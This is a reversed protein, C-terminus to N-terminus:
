INKGKYIIHFFKEGQLNCYVYYVCLYIHICLTYVCVYIYTYIFFAANPVIWLAPLIRCHSYM